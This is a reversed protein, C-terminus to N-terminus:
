YTEMEFTEWKGIRISNAVVSNEDVANLYKGQVSKLAFKNDKLKIFDFLNNKGIINGGFELRSDVNDYSNLIFWYDRFSHHVLAIKNNPFRLLIIGSKNDGLARLYFEYPYWETEVAIPALYKGNSGKISVREITIKVFKATEIIKDSNAYLFINEDNICLYKGNNAKLAFKGDKLKIYTFTTSEDIETKGTKLKGSEDEPDVFLYGYAFIAVKNKSIKKLRFESFMDLYISGKTENHMFTKESTQILISSSEYSEDAFSIVSYISTIFIILTICIIKKNAKKSM